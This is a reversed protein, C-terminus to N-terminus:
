DEGRQRGGIPNAALWVFSYILLTIGFGFTAAGVAIGWLGWSALLALLWTM